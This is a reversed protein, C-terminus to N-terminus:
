AEKSRPDGPIPALTVGHRDACEKCAFVAHVHGQWVGDAVREGHGTCEPECCRPLTAEQDDLDVLYVAIDYATGRALEATEEWTKGAPRRRRRLENILTSRGKLARQMVRRRKEADAIREREQESLDEGGIFKV